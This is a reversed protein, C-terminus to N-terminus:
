GGGRASRNTERVSWPVPCNRRAHGPSLCQFCLRHERCHVLASHAEDDCIACPLADLGDIRPFRAYRRGSSPQRIGCNRMLVKVLMDIVRELNAKEISGRQQSGSDRCAVSTANVDVKCVDTKDTRGCCTRNAPKYNSDSQHANLMAQVEHASM